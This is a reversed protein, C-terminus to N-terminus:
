QTWRVRTVDNAPIPQNTWMGELGARWVGLKPLVYLFVAPQDRSLIRQLEGLLELQEAEDTSEVWRQFTERYEESEYNFYYDERAFIDFDRPEVHAIITADFDTNRFVQELWQAWEMPILEVRLGVNQLLAAIVEGGRRAYAPPPLTIRITAGEAGAEALLARARDPDFPFADALDVFGPDNPTFHSGIPTGIGEHVADILVQADIAHALAHRVRVDDFPARANNLSLLVEGQTDGIEVVFRDDARFQPLAEAAPFNPFADLDGALMASTAAAPDSVFRFTVRSLAAPEGWYDENRELEIRDGQVRSAFRFPGTGVPNTRNDAATDPHVMVADGWGMNFLFRATPRALTIVATHEDPCETSVIPEFLGKQANTSDPAVAREFSFQVVSCDFAAGDHFRVGEALAFTYVTGDESIEWSRALAPQISGDAAIRVLGEFINAYTVERIAAAAGATPDLMPPELAMGIVLTDRAQAAASGPALPAALALAAAAVLPAAAKARSTDTSGPRM